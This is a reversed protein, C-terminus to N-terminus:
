SRTEGLSKCKHLNEIRDQIEAMSLDSEAFAIALYQSPKPYSPGQTEYQPVGFLRRTVIFIYIQNYRDYQQSAKTLVGLNSDQGEIINKKIWPEVDFKKADEFNLDALQAFDTALNLLSNRYEITGELYDLDEKDFERTGQILERLEAHIAINCGYNDAGPFSKMYALAREQLISLQPGESGTKQEDYDFYVQLGPPAIKLKEWRSRYNVLPFGSRKRWAFDWNDDKAAFSIMSKQSITLDLDKMSEYVAKVLSLYTPEYRITEGDEDERIVSDFASCMYAFGPTKESTDMLANMVATAFVSGGARRGISDSTAWAQSFAAASAATMGSINFPRSPRLPRVIPKTLWGGSYCSTIVLTVDVDKKLCKEFEKMLFRPAHRRLEGGGIAVGHDDIDGHGFVLVLVPQKLEAAIKIEDKVTYLFRQLLDTSSIVRINGSQELHDLMSEDLVVRRDGHRSGHVYEKYNAVLQRPNACTLWIQSASCFTAPPFCETKINFYLSSRSKRSDELLHHFLFFDSFFWGDKSPAGCGTADSVGCVAIIRTNPQVDPPCLSVCEDDNLQPLDGERRRFGGFESPKLHQPSAM